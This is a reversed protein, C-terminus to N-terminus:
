FVQGASVRRTRIFGGVGTPLLIEPPSEAFDQLHDDDDANVFIMGRCNGAQRPPNALPAAVLKAVPPQQRVILIETGPTLDASLKRLNTEAVELEVIQTMGAEMRHRLAIKDCGLDMGLIKGLPKIWV